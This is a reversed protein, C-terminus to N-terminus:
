PVLFSTKNIVSPTLFMSDKWFTLFFTLISNNAQRSYGLLTFNFLFYHWRCNHKPGNCNTCSGDWRCLWVSLYQPARGVKQCLFPAMFPFDGLCFIFISSFRLYNNKTYFTSHLTFYCFPLEFLIITLWFTEEQLYTASSSFARKWTKHNKTYHKM